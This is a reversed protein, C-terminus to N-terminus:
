GPVGQSGLLNAEPLLEGIREFIERISFPKALIYRVQTDTLMGPAIRHGRATLLIVPIAGTSPNAALERCFTVGDMEPMQYDSIVLDPHHECALALGELGDGGSFVECGAQKLKFCLIHAIHAEDDLVLSRPSKAM